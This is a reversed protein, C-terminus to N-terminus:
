TNKEKLKAEVLEQVIKQRTEEPKFHQNAEERIQRAEDDTLGRWETAHVWTRQPPEQGMSVEIGAMVGAQYGADYPDWSECECTYRDNAHSANRNFGHPAKPHPNCKPEQDPEVKKLTEKIHWTYHNVFSQVSDPQLKYLDILKFGELALEIAKQELTTM